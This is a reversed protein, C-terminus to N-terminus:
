QFHNSWGAGWEEPSVGGEGNPMLPPGPLHHPGRLQSGYAALARRCDSRVWRAAPVNSAPCKTPLESCCYMHCVGATGLTYIHANKVCCPPASFVDSFFNHSRPKFQTNFPTFPVVTGHSSTNNTHRRVANPRTAPPSAPRVRCQARRSRCMTTAAKLHVPSCDVCLIMRLPPPRRTDQTHARIRKKGLSFPTM